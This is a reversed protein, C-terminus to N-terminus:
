CDCIYEGITNIHETAICRRYRPSIKGIVVCKDIGRTIQTYLMNRSIFGDFNVTGLLCLVVKAQSGQLKHTTGAYFLELMALDEGKYEHEATERCRYLVYFDDDSMYDYYKVCVFSGSWSDDNRLTKHYEFGEPKPTSEPRIQINDFVGVFKGVDGNCVGCGYIKTFQGKGDYKYWQLGYSNVKTHIVRDGLIFKTFGLTYTVKFGRNSNFVPQLVENMKTTGWPYRAVSLPSVVQIDDRDYGENIFRNVQNICIRQISDDGCQIYEFDDKPQLAEMGDCIINANLTIASGDKARKSTKLFVCPMFRLLNKFPLGKGIPPLQATDGFMYFKCNDMRKICGYLTDLTFMAGEDIFFIEDSYEFDFDAGIKFQSHATKCRVKVVESLRKAAKGTPAVFIAEGCGSRELVYKMCATVTTKGSGASGAVIGGNKELLHVAQRQEPELKFGAKKEYEDVYKDILASSLGSNTKGCEYAYDYITLERKLYKTSTVKDNFVVGLGTAVYDNIISTMETVYIPRVMYSGDSIFGEPSYGINKSVGLYERCNNVVWNSLHSGTAKTNEYQKKTLRVGIKANKIENVSFYTSGGTKQIYDDIFYIGRWKDLDKNDAQGVCLALKERDDVECLYPNENCLVSSTVGDIGTIEKIIGGYFGEKDYFALKCIEWAKDDAMVSDSEGLIFPAIDSVFIDILYKKITSGCYDKEVDKGFTDLYKGVLDRGTSSQPCPRHTFNDCINKVLLRVYKDTKEYEPFEFDSVGYLIEKLETATDSYPLIEARSEKKETPLEVVSQSVEEEVTGSSQVSALSTPEPLKSTFLPLQNVKQPRVIKGLSASQELAIYMDGHRDWDKIEIDSLPTNAIEWKDSHKVFNFMVLYNKDTRSGQRVTGRLTYFDPYVGNNAVVTAISGNVLYFGTGNWIGRQKLSNEYASLNVGLCDMSVFMSNDPIYVNDFLNSPRRLRANILGYVEINNLKGGFAEVLAILDIM